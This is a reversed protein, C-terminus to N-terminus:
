LILNKNYKIREKKNSMRASIIRIGTNRITYVVVIVTKFMKGITIWRVEPYNNRRDQYNIRNEDYFVEKAENFIIGHKEKNSKNKNKDWEFRM